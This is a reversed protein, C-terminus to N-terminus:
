VNYMCKEMKLILLNYITAGANNAFILVFICDFASASFGTGTSDAEADSEVEVELEVELELELELFDNEYEVRNTNKMRKNNCKKATRKMAGEIKYAHL